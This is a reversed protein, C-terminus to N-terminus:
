ARRQCSSRALVARGAHHGAVRVRHGPDCHQLRLIWDHRSLRDGAADPQQFRPKSLWPVEIVYDKYVLGAKSFAAEMRQTLRRSLTELPYKFFIFQCSGLERAIAPYIWDHKRLTSSHLALACSYRATSTSGSNPWHFNKSRRTWPTTAAASTAAARRAKGRLQGAAAEPEFDTASIYYDMTPLGSTEPHGWTTAQVPAASPERAQRGDPGDRDRSLDARRTTRRPNGAGMTAAPRTGSRIAVRM